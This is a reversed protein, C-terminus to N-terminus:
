GLRSFAVGEIEVLLDPRCVDAHAYIAPLPGFRRECVARCTEFDEERKVYVRIKALDELTAGAGSIGHRAFNERSILRQINEITQETQRAADGPHVTESNM